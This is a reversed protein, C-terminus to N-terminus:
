RVEVGDSRRLGRSGSARWAPEYVWNAVFRHRVDYSSLGRNASRDEPEQLLREPDNVDEYGALRSYISQRLRDALALQTSKGRHSDTWHQEILEGFRLREDLERVLILGGDSTVRSRLPATLSRVSGDSITTTEYLRYM